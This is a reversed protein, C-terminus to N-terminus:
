HGGSLDGRSRRTLGSNAALSSLLLSVYGSLELFEEFFVHHGLSYRKEFLDGVVLLVGGLMLLIGPLSGLFLVVAKKYYSFRSLAYLLMASFAVALTTNRGVGSCLFKIAAPVNLLEVDLERVVFSYCLLSCFLLILKGSEKHLAVPVLFVICGIVLLIAQM